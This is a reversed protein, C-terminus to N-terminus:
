VAHGCKPCFRANAPIGRGCHPCARQSGLRSACNQCYIEDVPNLRGCARCTIGARTITPAPRLAAALASWSLSRLRPGTPWPITTHPRSGAPAAGPPPGAPRAAKQQPQTASAPRPSRLADAAAQCEPCRSLHNSYLHGLTCAVLADEATNLAEEWEEPLPRARPNAHGDIFAQRALKALAPHLTNLGPGGRPPAIPQVPKYDYPWAGDRIRDEV